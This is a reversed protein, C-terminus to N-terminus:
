RRHGAARRRRARSPLVVRPAGPEARALSVRGRLPEMDVVRVQVPDGLRLGRGTRTGLLAVELPDLVLDEDSIRRAPLFGDYVDGFGVFVGGPIIGAVEGEWVTEWGGRGIEEGLLLAACVRDARREVNAAARERESSVQGAEELEDRAPGRVGIGLADVLGRHVMLDPYRRIPSTFHAYAASALGSHGVQLPTYYAQALSRLV